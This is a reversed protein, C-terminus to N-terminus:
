GFIIKKQGRIIVDKTKHNMWAIAYPASEELALIETNPLMQNITKKIFM